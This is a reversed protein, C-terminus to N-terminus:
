HTNKGTTLSLHWARRDNRLGGPCVALAGCSEVNRVNNAPKTM